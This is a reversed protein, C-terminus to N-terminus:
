RGIACYTNLRSVLAREEATAAALEVRAADRKAADGGAELMARTARESRELIKVYEVRVQALEQDEVEVKAIADRHAAIADAIVRARADDDLPGGDPPMAKEAQLGPANMKEILKACQRVRSQCGFLCAAALFVVL